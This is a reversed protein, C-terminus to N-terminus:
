WTSYDKKRTATPLARSGVIVNLQRNGEHVSIVKGAQGDLLPNGLFDRNPKVTESAYNNNTVYITAGGGTGGDGGDNGAEGGDGGAGGSSGNFRIRTLLFRLRM